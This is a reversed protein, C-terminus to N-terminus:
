TRGAGGQGAVKQVEKWAGAMPELAWRANPPTVPNQVTPSDSLTAPQPCVPSHPANERMTPTPPLCDACRLDSFPAERLSPDSRWRPRRPRTRVQFRPAATRTRASPRGAGSRSVGVALPQTCGTMACSRPSHRHPASRARSAASSRKRASAASLSRSTCPSSGPPDGPLLPHGLPRLCASPVPHPTASAWSARPLTQAQLIPRLPYQLRSTSARSHPPALM